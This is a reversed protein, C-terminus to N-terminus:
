LLDLKNEAIRSRKPNFSRPGQVVGTWCSSHCGDLTKTVTTRPLGWSVFIMNCPGTYTDSVNLLPCPSFDHSTM